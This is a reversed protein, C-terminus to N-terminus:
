PTTALRENVPQLANLEELWRLLELQQETFNHNPESGDPTMPAKFFVGLSQAVGGRGKRGALDLCRAIELALPAALISDKCLFNVKIQMQHGLFGAIDINDWAEKNDGRPKYYNIKVVHDEVPYGLCNTLVDGKTNIKNLLSKPQRLAEGDRNGLINTSFWGDVHLARARLAPALVTKLYTQGTKGDKGAVPVNREAALKRLAPVDAAVSPTFNGYPTGMDICAYAYLMAPSIGPDNGDLGAEFAAPTQYLDAQLDLASETSALNIVVVRGNIREGFERIQQQITAVLERHGGTSDEGNVVGECYARNAIAPLPYIASLEERVDALQESTLVRHHAAARYLDDQYLDWGTFRLNTYDALDLHDFEALPLGTTTQLGKRLLISGAVATTAVAGGLGVIAIGLTDSTGPPPPTSM